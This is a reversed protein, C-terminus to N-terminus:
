LSRSSCSKDKRSESVSGIKSHRNIAHFCLRAHLHGAQSVDAALALVVFVRKKIPFRLAGFLKLALAAQGHNGIAHTTIFATLLGTAERDFSHKLNVVLGETAIGFGTQHFGEHLRVPPYLFVAFIM